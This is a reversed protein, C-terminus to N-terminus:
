SPTSDPPSPLRDTSIPGGPWWPATRGSRWAITDVPPWPSQMTSVRRCWARGWGPTASITAEGRWWRATPDSRWAISSVRQLAWRLYPMSLERYVPLFAEWNEDLLDWASDENGTIWDGQSQYVPYAPDNKAVPIVILGMKMAANGRISKFFPIDVERDFYSHGRHRAFADLGASALANAASPHEDVLSKFKSAVLDLAEDMSTEEYKGNKKVLPKTLRDKGYLIGPLHYGKVCLLGLNVPNQKDGAVAIIRGDRVGVMVGCGTGCFRCPAKSWTISPDNDFASAADAGSDTGCGTMLTGAVATSWAAAMNKLFEERQM